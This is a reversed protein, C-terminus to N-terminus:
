LRLLLDKKEGSIRGGCGDKRPLNYLDRSKKRGWSGRADGGGREMQFERKRGGAGVSAPADRKVGEAWCLSIAKGREGKALGGRVERSTAV